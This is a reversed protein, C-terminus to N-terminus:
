LGFAGAVCASLLVLQGAGVGGALPRRELVCIAVDDRRLLRPGFRFLVLLGVAGLARAIGYTGYIGAGVWANGSLLAAIPIAYWLWFGIRTTAGCGLALGNQIAWRLAGRHIWPQPTERDFQLLPLRGVVLERAGIAIGFIAAISALALRVELALLSGVIGLVGGALVGGTLAAGSM